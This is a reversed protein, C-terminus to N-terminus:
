QSRTRHGVGTAANISAREGTFVRRWRGSWTALRARVIALPEALYRLVKCPKPQYAYVRDGGVYPHGGTGLGTTLDVCEAATGAGEANPQSKRGWVTARAARDKAFQECQRYEIVLALLPPFSSGQSRAVLM